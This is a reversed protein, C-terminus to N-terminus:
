LFPLHSKASFALLFVSVIRVGATYEFFIGSSSFDQANSSVELPVRGIVSTEGVGALPPAVCLLASRNVYTAAVVSM